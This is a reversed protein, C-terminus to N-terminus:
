FSFRMVSFDDDLTDTNGQATIQRYLRNLDAHGAAEDAAIRAVFDDLSLYTGDPREIEYAGDSFVYLRADAPVTLSGGPFDLDSMLAIAPSQSELLQVQKTQPDYLIAPPHGGGSFDIRRTKPQYVGYWISFYLGGNNEMRYAENLALLVQEPNRFDVGRLSGSQLIHLVGVAFLSPGVGHGCVDLLYIAFHDPDIWHYGFADGALETSPILCWTASFPEVMPAPLLSRVFAAADDLEGQLRNHVIVLAENTAQLEKQAAQLAGNLQAEREQMLTMDYARQQVRRVADRKETVDILMVWVTENEDHFHMDASRGSSLEMEPMFFPSEPLPLLGELFFAQESAPEGTKLDELGYNALNGGAGILVGNADIQLYAVAREAATLAELHAAIIAPLKTV